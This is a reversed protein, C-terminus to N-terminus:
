IWKTQFMGITAFLVSKQAVEISESVGIQDYYLMNM